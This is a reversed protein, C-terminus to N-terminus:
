MEMHVPGKGPLDTPPLTEASPCHRRRQGTQVSWRQGPHGRRRRSGQYFLVRKVKVIVM